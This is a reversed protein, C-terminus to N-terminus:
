KHLFGRQTSLIAGRTNESESGMGALHVERRWSVECEICEDSESEVNFISKLSAPEGTGGIGVVFMFFM